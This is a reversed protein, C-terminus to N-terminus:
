ISSLSGAFAMPGLSRAFAILSSRSFRQYTLWHRALPGPLLPSRLPSSGHAVEDCRKAQALPPAAPNAAQRPRDLLIPRLRPIVLRHDLTHLRQRRLVAAIAIQAEVGHKPALPQDLVPLPGPPKIDLLAQLDPRFRSALKGPAVARRGLRRLPRHLPPRQIMHAILEGVVPAEPNQVDDIRQGAPTQGCVGYPVVAPETGALDDVDQDGARPDGTEEVVQRQTDSKRFLDNELRWHDRWRNSCGSAVARLSGAPRHEVPGLPSADPKPEDLRALGDLVGEDLTEVPLEALLAQVEVPEAREAVSAVLDVAPPVVVVGLAWM